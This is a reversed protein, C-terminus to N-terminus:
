YGLKGHYPYSIKEDINLEPSLAERPGTICDTSIIPLNLSLAEILTMPLGEWLSTFVFCHSKKLYPFVNTKNGLLFVHNRLGLENVLSQLEERLPGEGLIFLKADHHKDVVRYFSRILFWQGKQRILSGINIFIFNNEDLAKSFLNDIESTENSLRNIEEVDVMNYITLTNNVKFHSILLKEIEKSVCVTKDARNYFFNIMQVKFKNKVHILPNIHQSIIIKARNKFAIRSLVAHLNAVEGVSIVTDIDLHSCLDKIKKSNKLFGYGRKIVNFTINNQDLTHYQGKFEYKPDKDIFTLYHIKKGKNHLEDGLTAAIREAGGGVALSDLLILIKM